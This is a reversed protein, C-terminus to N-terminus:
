DVITPSDDTTDDPGLAAGIPPGAHSPTEETTATKEEDGRNEPALTESTLAARAAAVFSACTSFREEPDKALAKAIVGDLAEPLDPRSAGISPPPDSLHAFMVAAENDRDFPVRGTLCQYFVCGLSYIDAAGAVSRGEIQEPPVYDITGVFQGTRTLGSTAAARRTLGFDTLYVRDHEDPSPSPVVLINAPKVDRHVLGAAHAADLAAGVQGIIDLARQPDLAGESRILGGLDGGEVFRMAIYLVGDTDGADYISVINPHDLSAALRSERVFRDRLREDDLEPSLVKLAAKRGLRMHEALYVVGMGGRGIIREIRYAAIEAGTPLAGLSPRDQDAAAIGHLKTLVNHVHDQAARTSISLREGIERYTYGKAVLKLIENERPSLGSGGESPIGGVSLRRFEGLVLGALSPSFVPQGASASRVADVIEEATSSKLLYGLAGSKVAELVDAEEGSSSLIVVRVDPAEEVIRRTADVGGVSPMNLDMLVVHPTTERALEIAESGSGAEAVVTVIGSAELDARIGARWVPHDDVVMVRIELAEEGSTSV